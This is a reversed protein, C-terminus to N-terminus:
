GCQNAQGCVGGDCGGCDIVGGCGDLMKGCEVHLEACGKPVCGGPRSGSDADAHADAPPSADKAGPLALQYGAFDYGDFLTCGASLLASAFLLRRAGLAQRKM